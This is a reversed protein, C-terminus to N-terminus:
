ESPSPPQRRSHMIVSHRWFHSRAGIARTPRRDGRAHGLHPGEPPLQVGMESLPHLSCVESSTRGARREARERKAGVQSSAWCQKWLVSGAQAGACPRRRGPCCRWTSRPQHVVRDRPQEPDRFNHQEPHQPARVRDAIGYMPYPTQRRVGCAAACQRMPASAGRLVFGDSVLSETVRRQLPGTQQSSHTWSWVETIRVSVARAPDVHLSAGHVRQESCAGLQQRSCSIFHLHSLVETSRIPSQRDGTHSRQSVSPVSSAKISINRSQGLGSM